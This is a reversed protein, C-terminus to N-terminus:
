YAGDQSNARTTEHSAVEYTLQRHSFTMWRSTPARTVASLPRCDIAYRFSDSIFPGFGKKSIAILEKHHKKLITWGRGRKFNIKPRKLCVDNCNKCSIHSSIDM